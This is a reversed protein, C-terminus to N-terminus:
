RTRNLPITGLQVVVEHDDLRGPDRELDSLAIHNNALRRGNVSVKAVGSAIHQPNEVVIHLQAGGFRVWMEFGPWTPPICPDIQLIGDRTQLGLIGEVGLRWTWAAAGTYWSWGGRGVWPACSYIDGALVYPEVRYRAIDQATTTRLVPNLLRFIREAKAGDRLGVHALGLWVAAHTYQGGNERIGRPYGRIYGPDHSTTDFPPWLLLVLRDTERVLQLEAAAVAQRAHDNHSVHTPHTLVSWSQAISDIRCERNKASGLLSGDDHFARQYWEGDWAVSEIQARLEQARNRWLSADAAPQCYQALAAFRDMAACLFWGLWVSEGRGEAGVRNMGDNWDGGAMLPLGHSGQTVSREMARRCHEFLTASHKSTAFQAYRDEEDPRLPEATLFPLLEDLISADGTANVYEGTVFPLWALDDSCRTRVGRGSPPHWWHLVDGDDFQHKAATLIQERAMAPAVQLLALVDQLQDRFGFAGSSQYYGTRGFIRAAVTQYLLWRNLMVDMSPEPTKVRVQDLLTDWFAQPDVWSQNVAAPEAFRAILQLAEARSAAQGVIFYTELAQEPALELHVQLAACPDAGIDDRNALGWRELGEPFEYNGRRGLFEARDVTFSHPVHHAAVFAVRGAFEVNWDCSALLCRHAQDFESVIHASQAARQRGLVWEAYYTATIRRHRPLQNTVKLRVIKVSADPPVFVTMLQALGHSTREFSTYGAGHRIRTRAGKGAPQPTASWVAATEEDRLYLVEAPIDSVPDNRWPTLRNEGSNGSWTVGLASESVLCGFTPNALVNCWPAPPVQEADVEIVYERGDDSFGGIGNGFLLPPAPSLSHDAASALASAVRSSASLPPPPPPMAAPVPLDRPVAAVEVLSPEFRPLMPLIERVRALRHGLSGDRTDLLIRATAELHKRDGDSIQDVAIVFVGGVRNLWPEAGNATLVHRLFGNTDSASYGSPQEDLMVLDLTVGCSRLYRQVALIEVILPGTCDHVRVAVIPHDGSIGRGWLRSQCPPVAQRASPAARMAPDAYLLASFFRQVTPLLAADVNFRALRRACDQEADICAWHVAHMTGYKRVLELTSTRTPGMTTVFAFEVIGNPPLVIQATISMIPDLVAGVQGAGPRLKGLTSPASRMGRRGWFAARDSEFGALTVGASDHVLRHALVAKTEHPTRSRRAFVLCELEAIWESEIFLKSFAPHAESTGAAALVPQGASTMTLQRPEHTENRLTIKRVEVDDGAAIAINVHISIGRWRQHFEAEHMSWMTRSGANTAKTVDGSKEDRLYCWIGDDDHTPDAVYRTVDLGHWRLGGGGTSTLLSSLNRNSLIFAQPQVQELAAWAPPAAVAANPDLAPLVVGTEGLPWADPTNSPLRENLLAEGTEIMADAHFRQIMNRSNLVNGLAVLLMGQHHAMYSRVITYPQSSAAHGQGDRASAFTAPRALAHDDSFDVAEYFGYTGLMGMAELASVNDMVAQPRIGVAMLSAYPAVVQDNQLGRKLGLGHVGFSRYQYTDNADVHAFSSESVGWPQKRQKGQTIQADVAATGTTELLTGAQSKMLLTPMLFEFMTGGWSLLSAGQALKTMPRGLAYWHTQPVDRKVIALYSALRAESALLDYHNPDLRDITANYGIHFLKREADYLLKFDMARVEQDAREALTQLMAVLAVANDEAAAFVTDLRAVDNELQARDEDVLQPTHLVHPAHPEHPAAHASSTTTSSLSPPAVQTRLQAALQARQSRAFQAVDALRLTVPTVIGLALCQDPLALWPVLSTLERRMLALQQHLRRVSTQLATLVDADHRYEPNEVFALLAADLEMCDYDALEKLRTYSQQLDDRGVTIAKNMKTIITLLAHTDGARAGHVVEALLDLSDGLGDWSQRRLVPDAVLESCGHALAVLCGAFNGSDVTSVYRPNLAELDQTNYWNLLHGQYHAMRAISDFACRIRLSFESVGIFGFDYASLTALLALGINTPSTRHATQEHPPEQYNDIPLWQDNPGVFVDFFRWTRRALMRLKKQAAQDLQALPTTEVPQSLWRAIEPAVFWALLLPAAGLLAMPQVLGVVIATVSALLPSWMMTRWFYRRPSQGVITQAAHAASTWQLLNKHTFKRRVVVRGIADFAVVSEYVVFVTALGARGLNKGRMRRGLLSPLMPSVLLLVWAATWLVANGPLVLWGLVLVTVALAGTLSRRLNDIIKWRDIAALVTRQKLGHKTGTAHPVNSFIWPFLQWDGRIWRHMRMAFTAYSEPYNEFLVIDTALATRGHIGEFLDHSVLSNEPVRGEVSRMFADVDYIGKGCYIGAGFVDQYFESSAHTYIDFGIDGAFIKSFLSARVHSPSTDIRPQVITYGAVVRGTVDDFVARNLPHALLGVLRLASGVPLETDSDLTIVFRIASISARDGVYRCFSTQESGRLWQNLEDLKGRKREWGMFCQENANWRLERHLLHFPGRGQDGHKLNLAVIRAALIDLLTTDPSSPQVKADLDDTLLAFQLQPDPNSLYHLEIQRVMAAVDRSRGLLTPIVILTRADSPLGKSFDLKPLVAPPLLRAFFIHILAVALASAPVIALLGGVVGIATSSAAALYGVVAAVPLATLAIFPVFYSATPWRVVFRRVREMGAARYGIRRELEPRGEAVLYCGLSGRRAEGVHEAALAIARAAVDEEAVRTAWALSEVIKRYVDCTAFDMQSYIRSPDTRLIADVRNTNEFFDKWDIEDLIRLARVSREVGVDPSLAQTLGADAIVAAKPGAGLVLELGRQRPPEHAALFGLLQQLVAARLMTPLAWLEAITLASTRQYTEIFQRLQETDLQLETDALYLEALVGIRFRGKSPGAALQPLRGRFGPPLERTVQRAVRRLLYYNDFFWEGAIRLPESRTVNGRWSTHAQALRRAFPIDFAAKFYGTARVVDRQAEAWVSTDGPIAPTPIAPNPIAATLNM